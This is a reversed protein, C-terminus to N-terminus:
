IWKSDTTTSVSNTKVRFNLALSIEKMFIYAYAGGGKKKEKGTSYILKREIFSSM